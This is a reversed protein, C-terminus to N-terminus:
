LTPGGFDLTGDRLCSIANSWIRSCSIVQVEPLLQPRVSLNEVDSLIFKTTILSIDSERM